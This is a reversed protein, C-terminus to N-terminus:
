LIEMLKRLSIMNIWIDETLPNQYMLTRLPYCSFGDGTLSYHELGLYQSIIWYYHRNYHPSVWEVVKTGSACFVINTLGSGHAGLIVKAQSFLTIQEALSLSELEVPIFGFRTITEIVEAENLVRRYRADGRSIYIREPYGSGPNKALPLFTKRLFDIASPQLWGMYGAYAPVILQKAQIHPFQDSEIIKSAPIGLQKLTEQQFPSRQSNVLFKDIKDFNIGSQRLLNIRPLVDVMWHFYVNGSLGSLVAVTGEIKHLPPLQEQKFILHQEPNYSPCGPLPAPYERSVDALLQDDPTIIAIAKCVLWYNEQPVVWARGNPIVAVFQELSAFEASPSGLCKQIGFGLNNWKFQQFVRKLCPQCDLGNCTSPINESTTQTGAQRIPSVEIGFDYYNQTLQHNTLWEKTSFCVQNPIGKQEPTLSDARLEDLLSFRSLNGQIWSLGMQPMQLVQSYSECAAEWCQQKELIRGLQLNIEGRLVSNDQQNTLLQRAMQYVTFAANLRQQKFLCYGIKLYIEVSFPQIQVANQYYNVAQDFRGYQALTNGLHLYTQSLHQYVESLQMSSIRERPTLSETAATTNGFNLDSQQLIELFRACARHALSLEDFSPFKSERKNIGQCYGEVFKPELRIVKQFCALAADFRGLTLLSSACDTYATINDPELEIVKEFCFVATAQQNQQQCLKGLNSYALAFDPKLELAQRYATIADSTQGLAAYLQGINNYLVFNEPEYILAKQWLELAELYNQEQFFLCGLNIYANAYDPQLAIAKQYAIIAHDIEGLEGYRLALAFCADAHDPKLRLTKQYCQVAKRAEGQWHFAQGMQFYLEPWNPRLAIAKQYCLLAQKFQGTNRYVQALYAYAEAFDPQLQIAKLYANIAQDFQRQVEHLDGIIKYARACNPDESLIQWCTAFSERVNGVKFDAEASELLHGYM